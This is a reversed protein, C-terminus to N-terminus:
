RAEKDKQGKKGIVNRVISVMLLLPLAGALALAAIISIIGRTYCYTAITVLVIFGGVFLADLLRYKRIPQNAYKPLLQGKQQVLDAAYGENLRNKQWSDWEGIPDHDEKKNRRIM